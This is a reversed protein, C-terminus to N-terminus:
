PYPLCPPPINRCTPLRDKRLRLQVETSFGDTIGLKCHRVSLRTRPCRYMCTYIYIYIYIYTHTHTNCARIRLTGRPPAFHEKVNQIRANLGITTTNHMAVLTLVANPALSSVWGSRHCLLPVGSRRVQMHKNRSCDISIAVDRSEM